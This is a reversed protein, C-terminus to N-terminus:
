VNEMRAEIILLLSTTQQRCRQYPQHPPISTVPELRTLDLERPCPPNTLFSSSQHQDTQWTEMRRALFSRTFYM